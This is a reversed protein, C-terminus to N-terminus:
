ESLDASATHRGQESGRIPNLDALWVEGRKMSM